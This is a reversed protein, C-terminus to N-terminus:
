KLGGIQIMQMKVDDIAVLKALYANVNGSQMMEVAQQKLAYYKNRLENM